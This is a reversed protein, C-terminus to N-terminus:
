EPLDAGAQEALMYAAYWDPWDDDHKGGNRKEHEGHAAAARRLAAALDGHSASTAGNAEIRGPLRTTIEQLLWGNGDPDSFSAFSGYSARSPHPGPLRGDTNKHHFVGGVDHFVSSMEAGHSALAAHAMEIDSVVLHLGQASGPAASTVNSGFIVSCPSGPPTVQVVRFGDKGPVDADLRWGLGTYFAKARDVDSVPIVVVELKMDVDKVTKTASTSREQINM